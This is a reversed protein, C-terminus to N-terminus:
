QLNDYMLHGISMSCLNSRQDSSYRQNPCQDRSTRYNVIFQRIKVNHDNKVRVIDYKLFQILEPQM